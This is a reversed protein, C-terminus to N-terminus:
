TRSLWHRSCSSVLSARPGDSASKLNSSASCSPISSGVQMVMRGPLCAGLPHRQSFLCFFPLVTGLGSGMAAVGTATAIKTTFYTSIIAVSPVFLCGAGLGVSIAQALLIQWYQSCISLMMTGFVTAFTGVYVIERAYGADYIPGTAAGVFMLLFAQISGIWSIASPSYSSLFHSEYYTQYVGFM